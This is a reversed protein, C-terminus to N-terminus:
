ITVSPVRHSPNMAAVHALEAVAVVMVQVAAQEVVAVMVQVAAQEQEVVQVAVVAAVM